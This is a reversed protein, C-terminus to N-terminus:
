TLARGGPLLTRPGIWLWTRTAGGHRWLCNLGIRSAVRLVDPTSAAMCTGLHEVGYEVTMEVFDKVNSSMEAVSGFVLAKFDLERFLVGLPGRDGEATGFHTMDKVHLQKIYQNRVHGHFESVVAAGQNNDRVTSRM